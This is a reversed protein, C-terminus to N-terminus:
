PSATRDSAAQRSAAHWLHIVAYGRWPRWREARERLQRESVPTGDGAQQRLVLDGAPFADPHHLARLAIYQATWDGIGPLACWAAVFADLSQEPQIGVRAQAIAAAVASVSAARKGPLGIDRLDTDALLGADPFLSHLSEDIPTRLTRGHRQVLRRALTTAAAVSVQQGLVARVAVELGDWGGPLRLGPHAAVLPALLPDIALHEAIVLPDADLDFMRRVRGVIAPIATPEVGHLTLQLAHEDRGRASLSLWAGSGDIVRAYCDQSVHEIGPLARQRLFALTAAFDFPPRYALKLTLAGADAPPTASTRLRTPPLGYAKIFADNFRRLSRFGSALAVDTVPLRTESLLQKAFLLRRTAQVQQPTTGLAETFLRRLHREGVHLREALRAVPAEDLAGDEILRTARAVLTQSRRWAGDAPALEPRCRLCPRFGAAEAQAATAYYGVNREAAPPVPCVPRCYIGTSRVATFFRGDFRPDRALRAQACTIPDPHEPTLSAAPPQSM